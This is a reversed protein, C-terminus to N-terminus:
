GNQVEISDIIFDTGGTIERNFGGCAPCDMMIDALEYENGCACRCAAQITQITITVDSLNKEVLINELYFRLCHENIGSLTGIRLRIASLPKGDTNELATRIIQDAISYEHM